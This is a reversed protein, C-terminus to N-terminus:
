DFLKKLAFHTPLYVLLPFAIMVLSVYVPAPLFTQPENGLGYVWNINQTPTSVFRSLPLLIAAVITQVVLAREDYGLRYVMWVLLPPLVVHFLSMARICLNIQADFMYDSLGTLRAGSLLHVFFDVNWTIELLLVGVAVTSAVLSSELLLAALAGFLAIDSFWLFNAPGYQRWYIPVLIGVFASCVVKLWLPVM